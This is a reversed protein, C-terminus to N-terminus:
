DPLPDVAPGITAASGGSAAMICVIAAWQLASLREGLFYLGSLAAVAPEASMLIGFTRTPLRTLAIMELSYPLASSLLAVGIAIPWLAPAWLHAGVSVAGIPVILAAGVLMGLAATQGGHAVGARRGFVIYLAWCAGAALAYAIGAPDLGGGASRLPLLLVLGLAALAVWLFDLPRRAAAMAVTLPGTFELAVAIGLPITRLASYFLLNMAGMAAGYVVTSLMAKGRPRTRWPRWVVLLMLSAFALRLAAAGAAGIVPLLTKALAAGAQISIMAILLLAIPAAAPFAKTGGSTASM